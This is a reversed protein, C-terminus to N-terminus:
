KGFHDEGFAPRRQIEQHSGRRRERNGDGCAFCGALGPTNTRSSISPFSKESESFNTKLDEETVEYPLNGIYLNKNM